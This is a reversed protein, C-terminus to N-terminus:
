LAMYLVLLITLTTEVLIIKTLVSTDVSDSSEAQTTQNETQSRLESAVMDTTESDEISRTTIEQNPSRTIAEDNDTSGDLYTLIEVVEDYRRSRSVVDDDEDYDVVENEILKPIHNQRLSVRVSNKSIRDKDSCEEEHQIVDDVIENLPINVKEKEYIIKLVLRRRSNSLLEILWENTYGVGM